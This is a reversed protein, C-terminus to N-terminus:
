GTVREKVAEIINGMDVPKLLCLHKPDREVTARVTAPTNYGTCFVVSPSAWKNDHCMEMIRLFAEDGRMEPMSVDMVLLEHHGKEFKELAEVGSAATDISVMPMGRRLVKELLSRISPEDDVVLVANTVCPELTEETVKAAPPEATAVARIAPEQERLRRLVDAIRLVPDRYRDDGDLEVRTLLEQLPNNIEHNLEAIMELRGEAEEAAHLREEFAKREAADRLIILISEHGQWMVMAASLDAVVAVGDSRLFAQEYFAHGHVRLNGVLHGEDSDKAPPFLMHFDSCVLEDRPYLFFRVASDNVKTIRGTTADVVLIADLFHNFFLDFQQHAQSLEETLREVETELSQKPDNM